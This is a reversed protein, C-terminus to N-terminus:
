STKVQTPITKLEDNAVILDFEPVNGTFIFVPDARSNPCNQRWELASGPEENALPLRSLEIDAIIEESLAIAEEMALNSATIEFDM